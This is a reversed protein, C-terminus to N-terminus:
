ELLVGLGTLKQAFRAAVQRVYSQIKAVKGFTGRHVFCCMVEWGLM